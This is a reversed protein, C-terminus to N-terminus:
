IHDKGVITTNPLHALRCLNQFIFTAVALLKKAQPPAVSSFKCMCALVLSLPMNTCIKYRLQM